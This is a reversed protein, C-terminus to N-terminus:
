CKKKEEDKLEIEFGRKLKTMIAEHGSHLKNVAAVHKKTLEREKDKL